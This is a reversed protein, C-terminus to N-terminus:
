RANIRLTIPDGVAFGTLGTGTLTVSTIAGGPRVDNTDPGPTVVTGTANATTVKGRIQLEPTKM